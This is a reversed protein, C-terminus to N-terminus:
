FFPFLLKAWQQRLTSDSFGFLNAGNKTKLFVTRVTYKSRKPEYIFPLNKNFFDNNM